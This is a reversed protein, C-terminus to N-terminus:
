AVMFGGILWGSKVQTSPEHQRTMECRRNTSACVSASIRFHLDAASRLRACCRCCTLPCSTSARVIGTGGALARANCRGVRHQTAHGILDSYLMSRATNSEHAPSVWAPRHFQLLFLSHQGLQLGINEDREPLMSTNWLRFSESGTM